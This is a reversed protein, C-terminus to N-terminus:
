PFPHLACPAWSLKQPLKMVFDSGRSHDKYAATGLPASMSASSGRFSSGVACPLWRCIFTLCATLCSPPEQNLSLRTLQACPRALCSSPVPAFSSTPFTWAPHSPKLLASRSDPQLKPSPPFTLISSLLVPVHVLCLCHPPIHLWLMNCGGLDVSGPRPCCSQRPTSAPMREPSLSIPIKTRIRGHAPQSDTSPNILM